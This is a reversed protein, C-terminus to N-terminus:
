KWIAYLTISDGEAIGLGDVQEGDSFTLGSGDAQTSWGAFSYGDRTFQNSSLPSPTGNVHESSATFGSGGNANYQITYHFANSDGSASSESSSSAASWRAYLTHDSAPVESQETVRTGGSVATYWGDFTYGDRTPAPLPGYAAGSELEVSATRVNGGNANFTVKVATQAAAARWVAYLTYSGFDGPDFSAGDAYAAAGGKTESWGGFVYGERVFTNKPLTIGTGPEGSVPTMGGSGGNPDFSVSFGSESWVAYLTHPEAREVLTETNLLQEGDPDFAWGAFVYGDRQPVPLEGYPSGFSAQVSVAGLEGGQPDLTVTVEGGSWVAYLALEGGAAALDRVVAEDAYFDGSGDPETSWGSFTCGERTFPAKPLTFDEGCGPEVRMPKEEGFNPYLLLAYTEREVWAAYLTHDATQTCVTDAEVRVGGVAETFWGDFRWGERVPVPLEGYASEYVALAESPEVTGGRPDLAVKVMVPAYRQYMEAPLQELRELREDDGNFWDYVYGEDEGDMAYARGLLTRLDDPSSVEVTEERGDAYHLRVRVSQAACSALLTLMLLAALAWILKKM